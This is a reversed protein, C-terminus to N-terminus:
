SAEEGDWMKPKRELGAENHETTGSNGMVRHQIELALLDIQFCYLESHLMWEAVILLAILTPTMSELAEENETSINKDCSVVGSKV